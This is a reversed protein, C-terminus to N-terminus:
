FMIGSSEKRKEENRKKEKRGQREEGRGRQRDRVVFTRLCVSPWM